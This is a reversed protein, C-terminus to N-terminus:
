GSVKETKVPVGMYQADGFALMAFFIPFLFILGVAYGNSKGFAKALKITSLIIFVINYFPILLLFMKAGKGYVIKYFVFLNYFPIISAWGKEGAKIFVKWCSVIEVVLIVLNLVLSMTSMGNNEYM